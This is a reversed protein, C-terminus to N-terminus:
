CGAEEKSVIGGWQEAMAAAIGPFTKARTKSNRHSALTYRSQVKRTAERRSSTSGVWLVEPDVVNTAELLPLGRLWLCTRKRWPDGFMYPEIIQTYEPLGFYRLPAPNEVAVREVGCGLLALFFEKAAWGKRERAWDKVTHDPNLLRVASSATLYTCPPHAILMDWKTDTRAPLLMVVTTGSAGALFAREVWRGIQRGYPPNCWVVGEWPQTLGDEDPTYYRATKANEPLACVDLDFAFERNLEDFFAQPTAWKDTKSSFMLSTDM